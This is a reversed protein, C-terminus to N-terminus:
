AIHWSSMYFLALTAGGNKVEVSSPPSDDAELRPRKLWSSLAGAVWPIPPHTPGLAPMPYTFNSIMKVRGPISGRGDLRYNAKISLKLIQQLLIYQLCM